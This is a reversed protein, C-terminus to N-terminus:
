KNSDIPFYFYLYGNGQVNLVIKGDIIVAYSYGPESSDLTYYAYYYLYNTNLMRDAIAHPIEFYSDTSDFIIHM